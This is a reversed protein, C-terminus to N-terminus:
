EKFRQKGYMLHKCKRCGIGTPHMFLKGVRRKCNPCSFWIRDGGRYLKTSTIAINSGYTNLSIKLLHALLGKKAERVVDDIDVSPCTEVSIKGLNNIKLIENKTMTFIRM